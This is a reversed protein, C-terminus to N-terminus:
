PIPTWWWLKPQKTKSVLTVKASGGKKTISEVRGDFPIKQADEGHYAFYQPVRHWRWLLGIKKVAGYTGAALGILIAAASADM